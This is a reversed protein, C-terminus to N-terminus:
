SRVVDSQHAHQGSLLGQIGHTNTLGIKTSQHLTLEGGIPRLMRSDMARRITASKTHAAESMPLTETERGTANRSRIAARPLSAAAGEQVAINTLPKASTAASIGSNRRM